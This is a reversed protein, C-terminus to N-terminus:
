NGAHAEAAAKTSVVVVKHWELDFRVFADGAGGDDTAAAAAAAAAANVLAALHALNILRVGNVALVQVNGLDQYGVNAPAALVKALVVM